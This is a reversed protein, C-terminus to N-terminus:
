RPLPKTTVEIYHWDTLSAQEDLEKFTLYRDTPAKREEIKYLKGDSLKGEISFVCNYFGM